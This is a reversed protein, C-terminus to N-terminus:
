TGRKRRKFGDMVEDALVCKIVWRNTKRVVEGEQFDYLNTDKLKHPYFSVVRTLTVAGGKIIAQKLQDLFTNIVNEVIDQNYDSEQWTRRILDKRYIRM